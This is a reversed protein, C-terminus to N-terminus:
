APSKAPGNRAAPKSTNKSNKLRTQTNKWTPATPMAMVSCLMCSPVPSRPMPARNLSLAIDAQKMTETKYVDVVVIKAGRTKRAKIAHTMVNIQTAVPNTGWIVVTDAVAMERPDPGALKGTGAIYGTWAMNTCFTQYMGSYSKANRLRNISDRQVLGM